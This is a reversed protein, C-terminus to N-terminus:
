GYTALYPASIELLDVGSLSYAPESINNLPGFTRPAPTSPAFGASLFTTPATNPPTSYPVIPSTNPVASYVIMPVTGSVNPVLPVQPTPNGYGQATSSSSNATPIVSGGSYSPPDREQTMGNRIIYWKIQGTAPDPATWQYCEAQYQSMDFLVPPYASTQRGKSVM